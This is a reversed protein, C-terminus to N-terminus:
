RSATVTVDISVQRLDGGGTSADPGITKDSFTLGTGVRKLCTAFDTETRSPGSVEASSVNGMPLVTLAISVSRTAGRATESLPFCGAAGKRGSEIVLLDPDIKGPRASASARPTVAAPQTPLAQPTDYDTPTHANENPDSSAAERVMTPGHINGIVIPPRPKDKSCAIAFLVTVVVIAISIERPWKKM